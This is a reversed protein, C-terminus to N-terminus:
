RALILAIAFTLVTIIMGVMFIGYCTRLRMFKIGLTKGLSFLDTIISNDLIVESNLVQALGRRYEEIDMKYFNGFFFLNTKGEKIKSIDTRGTMKIPRTALTAFVISLVCTTLLTAAPFILYPFKEINGALMPIAITILLSNISLMINAKNDAINTLDVHNRLTTKFILVASKNKSITAELKDEAGPEGLLSQLKKKFYKITKRKEEGFMAQAEGTYFRHENWFRINNDYWDAEKMELNCFVKWEHRLADSKELYNGDWNNFDSDKIIKELLSEPEVGLKTVAILELIKKIKGEPYKKEQLFNRAIIASAEEHGEYTQTYGTDHFLSALELLEIEEEELRYRRAIELCVKRNTLTHQLNHYLHDSSLQDSLHDTVFSEASSIIDKM